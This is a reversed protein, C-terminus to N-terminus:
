RGTRAREFARELWEDRGARIGGVTPQVVIDIGIGAGQIRSGDFFLGGTGTFALKINGPIALSSVNGGAGATQSGIVVAGSVAKLAQVTFEGQSYTDENVVIIVRGKYYGANEAAPGATFNPTGFMFRGPFRMDPIIPRAFDFPRPYLYKSMEYLTGNPICRMDFVIAQTNGLLAFAAAVDGTEILNGNIYGINGPFLSYKDHALMSALEENDVLDKAPCTINIDLRVGSRDLTMPLAPVTSRLLYACLHQDRFAENSGRIYKLKERRLTDVPIGDLATVIDGARIDAGALLTPYTEVVVMRGEVWRPKFPALYDGWFRGIEDSVAAAHSDNISAALELIALHYDRRTSAAMIRPIFAELVQNWDQKLLDKYPYFYRIMNWYRFLGLLRYEENPDPMDEYAKERPFYAEGTPARNKAYENILYEHSLYVENLLASTIPLFLRADDMWALDADKAPMNPNRGEVSMGAARIMMLVAHNFADKTGAQKVRPLNEILVQDWDVESASVGNDYYKLFGWVKALAALRETM